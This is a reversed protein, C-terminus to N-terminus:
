STHSEVFATKHLVKNFLSRAWYLQLTNRPQYHFEETTVFSLTVYSLKSRVDKFGQTHEKNAQIVKDKLNQM